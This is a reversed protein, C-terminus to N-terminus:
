QTRSKSFQLPFFHVVPIEEPHHYGKFVCCSGTLIGNEVPLKYAVSIKKWFLLRIPRIESDEVVNELLRTLMIESAEILNELLRTPRIESAEILNELLRTPTIESAEISNKLLRTLRIESAEIIYLEGVIQM